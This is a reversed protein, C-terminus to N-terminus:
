ARRFLWCVALRAALRPDAVVHRLIGRDLGVGRKLAATMLARDGRRAADYARNLFARALRRDATSRSSKADIEPDDNLSNLLRISEELDATGTKFRHTESSSHWRIAVTPAALWAVSHRRAVRLWFDWDVVYRYSPDFGGVEAHASKSVTVASCRLPNFATLEALFAGPGYVRDVSEIQERGVVSPPVDAGNEDIVESAGCVFGLDPHDRIAADHSQLHGPLMVDDQHFVAVFPTRSAEVCRNWNGALGLRESNVEVRVRDGAISRVVAVTDDESRDDHINFDICIHEQSLISRVAEAVFRAGNCTPIAVTLLPRDIM